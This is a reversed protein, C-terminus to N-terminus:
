ELSSLLYVLTATGDMTPENTSYDGVDDHYVVLDSQFTAFEDENFLSIGLLNNYISGSVPGDILGGDLAYGHLHSLSSHPDKPFVGNEPLGIVMSTGWPNAGFLWDRMAAELKIYTEDGSLQRYLVCQTVFAATLNNSCWIFPIGRLYGNEKARNWVIEIGRRYYDIVKQKEDPSLKKALEFHGINVFPYWQYHNATDNIIWPTVPEQDGFHKAEDLYDPNGTQNYLSVAALEMDDVWNDEEYFYPATGPATQCVGPKAKGFEYASIAKSKLKDAFSRDISNYVETGIAFASAFKGATSATGTARNFNGLLGQVEGSCFYVPRERGKGYDVSDLNPLRFGAHDRDDAIQNFMWDERPHMKLLWDLGWRAEDLIDPVGNQGPQGSELYEDGFADPNERYAFLLNFVANASTTSYQLYDTADHWGGTVDIFTSDPMPGYMTYGDRTHCRADLFPNYGCRQQRMYRLMFDASGKYVDPDISFSPSKLSGIQIYYTGSINYESFDLRHISAFPGYAEYSDINESKWSGVVQNTRADLLSFERFSIAEKSSLVAVKVQDPKYGIQNLRIWSNM